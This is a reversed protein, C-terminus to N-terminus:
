ENITLIAASYHATLLKNKLKPYLEYVMLWAKNHAKRSAIGCKVAKKFSFPIKIYKDRLDEMAQFEDFKEIIEEPLAYEKKENM